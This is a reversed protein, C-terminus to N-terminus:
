SLIIKLTGTSWYSTWRVTKVQQSNIGAIQLRKIVICHLSPTASARAM